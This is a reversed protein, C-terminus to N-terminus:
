KLLFLSVRVMQSCLTYKVTYAGIYKNPIIHVYNATYTCCHLCKFKLPKKKM